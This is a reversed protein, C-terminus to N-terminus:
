HYFEPIRTVQGARIQEVEEGAPVHRPDDAMWLGFIEHGRPLSQFLASVMNKM